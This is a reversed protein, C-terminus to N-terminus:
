TGRDRQAARADAEAVLVILAQITLIANDVTNEIEDAKWRQVWEVASIGTDAEFRQAAVVADGFEVTLVRSRGCLRRQYAALASQPVRLGRESRRVGELKGRKILKYVGDRTMELEAAVQDVTLEGVGM